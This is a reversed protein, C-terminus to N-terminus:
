LADMELGCKWAPGERQRQVLVRGTYTDDYDDNVANDHGARVATFFDVEITIATENNANCDHRKTTM